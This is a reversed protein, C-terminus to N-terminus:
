QIRHTLRKECQGDIFVFTGNEVLEAYVDAFGYLCAISSVLLVFHRVIGDPIITTRLM